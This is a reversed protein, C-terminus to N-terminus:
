GGQLDKTKEALQQRFGAADLGGGFFEGIAPQWVDTNWKPEALAIGDSFLAYHTAAGYEKGYDALEPPAEVDTRPTLNKAETAIGSIRDKHMFYSIFQAAADANRAKSPISFGVPAAEVVGAGQDDSGMAPFPFSRPDFSDPDQGGKDLSATAESPLWSGMLIVNTDSSQDAWASQQTPFKTGNFGEPFYGGTILEEVAETAQVWAESEFAAGTSDAAAETLTGPGGIRVLAWALWYAAYDSIDGDLAIPTRGDAKLDDLTSMFDAWTAPPNEALDPDREANVWISSGIVEYPVQFPKGDEGTVMELLSDPLVEGVTVGEGPIESALVGSLDSAGDVPGLAAAIDPAGQDILDPPNGANLRPVVQNLVERGSWEVEVTIGTEETFADLQEQIVQQQPEGEQWMSWYTFSDSGGGEAGGGSGCAALTVLPVTAVAVGLRRLLTSRM